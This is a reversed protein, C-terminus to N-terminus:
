KRYVVLAKTLGLTRERLLTGDPFYALLQSPTLLRIDNLYHEVYFKRSEPSPHTLSQWVTWRRAVQKQLGRPLYHIFPTLLHSEVPFWRNPTEVWYAKAVRRIEQAFALQRDPPGVHEIVSNSFAVDFSGDSFPLRCGDSFVRQMGEPRGYGELGAPLNALTVRAGPPLDLWCWNQPTGGVDLIRTHETLGFVSAFKRM